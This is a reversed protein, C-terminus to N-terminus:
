RAENPATELAPAPAGDLGEKPKPPIRLDTAPVNNSKLAAATACDESVGRRMMVSGFFSSLSLTASMCVKEMSLSYVVRLM